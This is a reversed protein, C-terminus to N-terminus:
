FTVRRITIKALAITAVCMEEMFSIYLVSLIGYDLCVHILLMAMSWANDVNYV